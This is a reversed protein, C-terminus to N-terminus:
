APLMFAGIQGDVVAHPQQMPATFLASNSTTSLEVRFLRQTHAASCVIPVLGFGLVVNGCVPVSSWEPCGWSSPPSDGRDSTSGRVKDGLEKLQKETQYVMSEANNKTEVAERKAKDEGAFRDAENVMRDVEDQSSLLIVSPFSLLLFHSHLILCFLMLM